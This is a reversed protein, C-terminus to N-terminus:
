AFPKNTNQPFFGKWFSWALAVVFSLAWTWIAVPFYYHLWIAIVGFVSLGRLLDETHLQWKVKSIIQSFPNM